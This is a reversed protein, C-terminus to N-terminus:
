VWRAFFDPKVFLVMLPQRLPIGGLCQAITSFSHPRSNVRRSKQGSSQAYMQGSNTLLVGLGFAM